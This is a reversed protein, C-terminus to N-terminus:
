PLRACTIKHVFGTVVVHDTPKRFVVHGCLSGPVLRFLESSERLFRTLDAIMMAVREVCDSLLSLLQPVASLRRAGGALLCPISGLRCTNGALVCSNGCVSCPFSHDICYAGGGVRHVSAVDSDQMMREQILQAIPRSRIAARGSLM